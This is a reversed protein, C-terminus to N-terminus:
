LGHDNTDVESFKLQEGDWRAKLRGLEARIWEAPIDAYYRVIDCGNALDTLTREIRIRGAKQAERYAYRAAADLRGPPWVDVVPVDLPAPDFRIM